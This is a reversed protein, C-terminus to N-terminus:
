VHPIEARTIGTSSGTFAHHIAARAYAALELTVFRDRITRRRAPSADPALVYFEGARAISPYLETPLAIGLRTAFTRSPPVQGEGGLVAYPDDELREVRDEGGVAGDDGREALREVESRRVRRVDDADDDVGIM